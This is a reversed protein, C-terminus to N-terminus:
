FTGASVSWRSNIHFRGKTAVMGRDPRRVIPISISLRRNRRASELLACIISAMKLSIGGACILWHVRDQYVRNGRRDPRSQRRDGPFLTSQVVM